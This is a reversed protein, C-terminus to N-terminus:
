PEISFIFPNASLGRNLSAYGHISLMGGNTTLHTGFTKGTEGSVYLEKLVDGKFTFTTLKSKQGFNHLVYLRDSRVLSHLAMQNRYNNVEVDIPYEFNELENGNQIDLQIVELGKTLDTSLNKLLHKVIFMRGESIHINYHFYELWKWDPELAQFDYRWVKDIKQSNELVDMDIKSARLDLTASGFPSVTEVFYLAGNEDAVIYKYFGQMQVQMDVSMQEDMHVLFTLGSEWFGKHLLYLLYAGGKGDSVVDILVENYDSYDGFMFNNPDQQAMPEGYEDLQIWTSKRLYNNLTYEQCILVSKDALEVLKRVRDLGLYEWEQQGKDGAIRLIRGDSLSAYSYSENIARTTSVFDNGYPSYILSSVSKEPDIESTCSSVTFLIAVVGILLTGSIIARLKM